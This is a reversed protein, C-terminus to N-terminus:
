FRACRYASVILSMAHGEIDGQRKTLYVKLEDVSASSDRIETLTDLFHELITSYIASSLEDCIAVLATSYNAPNKYKNTAFTTVIEWCMKCPNMIDECFLWTLLSQLNGLRRRVRNNGISVRPYRM